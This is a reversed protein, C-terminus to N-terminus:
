ECVYCEIMLFSVEHSHRGQDASDQGDAGSRAVGPTTPQRRDDTGHRGGREHAADTEDADGRRITDLDAQGGARLDGQDTM